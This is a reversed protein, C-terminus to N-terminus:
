AKVRPSPGAVWTEAMQIRRWTAPHTHLLQEIILPPADDGLSIDQFRKLASIMSRPNGLTRLAFEDAKVERGRKHFNEIPLLLYSVLLFALTLLPLAAVDSPSLGFVPAAGRLLADVLFLRPFMLVSSLGLSRLSDRAQDHGVEHAVVFRIEEPPFNALLTDFLFVRRDNAIGTMMAGPLSTKASVKLVVISPPAADAATKTAEAIQHALAEDRLPETQFQRAIGKPASNRVIANVSVYLTAVLIWWETSIRLAGLLVGGAMILVVAAQANRRLWDRAWRSQTLRSLGFRHEHRYRVYQVPLSLVLLMPFFVLIFLPDGLNSPAMEHLAVQLSHALGSGSFGVLFGLTVGENLLLVRVQRRTFARALHRKEPAYEYLPSPPVTAM